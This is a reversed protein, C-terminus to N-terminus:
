PCSWNDLKVSQYKEILNKYYEEKAKRKIENLTNRYTLYKVYVPDQKNKRVARRFLRQCKTSAKAIGTTMWPQKLIARHPISSKQMPACEDLVNHFRTMFNDYCKSVDDSDLVANWETNTLAASLRDIQPQGLQRCEFVLPQKIKKGKAVGMCAIIPYHDSIDTM